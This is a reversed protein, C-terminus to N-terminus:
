RLPFINGWFRNIQNNVKIGCCLEKGWICNVLFLLSCFHLNDPGANPVEM